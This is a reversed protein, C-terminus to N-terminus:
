LCSFRLLASHAQVSLVANKLLCLTHQGIKFLPTMSQQAYEPFSLQKGHEGSSVRPEPHLVNTLNTLTAIGKGTVPNPGVSPGAKLICMV